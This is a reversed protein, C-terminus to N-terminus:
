LQHRAGALNLLAMELQNPDAIAAPLDHPAEVVVKIQSGTTSSVLDGMGIVLQAVDVPVAQLPQRRAFALLRQVLTKAREASQMSGAILRQEREGGLKKRQLMDLSGVIPTLLNNFDHAVGGTLQGMAEMKQSQRLAEEAIVRRTVNRSSGILRVIRGEADRVPVLSTDWHQPDDDLDFVERYQLITGTEVVERYTELVRKAVDAPLIDEIRKGQIDALKLGVGAKDEDDLVFIEQGVVDDPIEYRGAGDDDSRDSLDVVREIQDFLRFV